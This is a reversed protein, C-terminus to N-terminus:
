MPTFAAGETRSPRRAAPREGSVGTPTKARTVRGSALAATPVSSCSGSRIACTSPPGAIRMMPSTTACEAGHRRWFRLRTREPRNSLAWHGRREFLLLDLNGTRRDHGGVAGPIAGHNIAGRALPPRILEAIGGDDAGIVIRARQKRFRDGIIEARDAGIDRRNRDGLAAPDLRTVQPLLDAAGADGDPKRYGDSQWHLHLLKEM